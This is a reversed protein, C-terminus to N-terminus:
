NKDRPEDRLTYPAAAQNPTGASVVEWGELKLKETGERIERFIRHIDYGCERAHEARERHISDLIDNEHMM